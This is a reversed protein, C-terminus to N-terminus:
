IIDQIIKAVYDNNLWFSQSVMKDGNPLLDLNQEMVM